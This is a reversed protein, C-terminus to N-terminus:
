SVCTVHEPTMPRNSIDQDNYDPAEDVAAVPRMQALENRMKDIEDQRAKLEERLHRMEVSDAPFDPPITSQVDAHDRQFKRLEEKLQSHFNLITSESSFM